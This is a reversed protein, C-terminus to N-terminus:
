IKTDNKIERVSLHAALYSVFTAVVMVTIFVIVFDMTRIDVPYVDMIANAGEGTTIFGYKEQFLCFLLGLAIGIVGGLFAIMVGEYFFIRQILSKNAGLSQLVLMDEKKDIVLMTLSGIINFIAIICIITLIFFVIWKESRVTKYLLPNQQERDKVKFTDGLATQIEKKLGQVTSSDKTYIEIASVNKHENLLDRAFPLPTIILNDYGQQYQLVGRPSISRINIEDMPNVSSGAQVGKRPSFLQITNDIGEIPVRLNSQIQAGIIAYPISDPYIDFDGAYLMNEHDVALLSAPEVGKVQAIFQHNDYQILIKDELVETYSQIKNNKRLDDFFPQKTSFVKGEAPEIRLEPAFTSYLSLILKEMGNYFSLVIVLAASSVLVGIVSISSIINIANVSKKSFLYRIAFFFPLKM